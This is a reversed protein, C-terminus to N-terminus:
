TVVAPPSSNRALVVRRPTSRFAPYNNAATRAARGELGGRRPRRLPQGSIYGPTGPATCCLRLTTICRLVPVALARTTVIGPRCRLVEHQAAGPFCARIKPWVTLILNQRLQCSSMRPWNSRGWGSNAVPPASGSRIFSHRLRNRRLLGCIAVRMSLLGSPGDRLMPWLRRGTRGCGDSHGELTHADSELTPARSCCHVLLLTQPGHNSVRRKAGSRVM